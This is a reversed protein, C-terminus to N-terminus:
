VIIFGFITAGCAAVLKQVFTSNPLFLTVLLLLLLGVLMVMVYAGCGTFDAQTRVAYVTLAAIVVVTLGFVVLVSQATYQACIMGVVVGLCAAFTFLYMYNWPATKFMLFYARLFSSGGCCMQCAICMNMVYQLLGM